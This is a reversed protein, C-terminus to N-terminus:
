GPVHGKLKVWLDVNADPWKGDNRLLHQATAFDALESAMTAIQRTTDPSSGYPAFAQILGGLAAKYTERWFVLRPDENLVFRSEPPPVQVKGPTTDLAVWEPSEEVRKVNEAKEVFGVIAEIVEDFLEGPAAIPTLPAHRYAQMLDYFSRGRLWGRLREVLLTV